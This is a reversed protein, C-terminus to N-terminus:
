SFSSPAHFLTSLNLLPLYVLSSMSLIHKRIRDVKMYDPAEDLIIRRWKFLQLIPASRESGEFKKLMRQKRSQSRTRVRNVVVEPSQEKMMEEVEKKGPLSPNVHQWDTHM